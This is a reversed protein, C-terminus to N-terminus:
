LVTRASPSAAHRPNTERLTVFLLLALGAAVAAHFLLVRVIGEHGCTSLFAFSLAFESAFRASNGCAYTMAGMPGSALDSVLVFYGCGPGVEYALCWLSLTIALPLGMASRSLEDRELWAAHILLAAMLALGGVVLVRRRCIAMLPVAACAGALNALSSVLPLAAFSSGTAGGDAGPCVSAGTAALVRSYILMPYAGTLQNALALAVALGVPAWASICSPATSAAEATPAASYQHLRASRKLRWEESEGMYLCAFIFLVAPPIVGLAMSIRWERLVPTASVIQAVLIGVAVAPAFSAQVPAAQAAPLTERVYLPKALTCFGVGVGISLRWWAMELVSSALACGVVGLISLTEGILTGSRRGYRQCVLGSIPSGVIAGLLTSGSLMDYAALPSEPFAEQLAPLASGVAAVNYGYHFGGLVILATALQVSTPAWLLFRDAAM